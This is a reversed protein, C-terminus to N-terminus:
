RPLLMEEMRELFDQRPTASMMGALMEADAGGPNHIPRRELGPGPVDQGDAQRIRELM